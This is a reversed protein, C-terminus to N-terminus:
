ISLRRRSTDSKLEFHDYYNKHCVDMERSETAVVVVGLSTDAAIAKSNCIGAIDESTCQAIHSTTSTSLLGNEPYREFPRHIFPLNCAHNFSFPTQSRSPVTATTPTSPLCAPHRNNDNPIAKYPM